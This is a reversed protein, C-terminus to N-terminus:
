TEWKNYWYMAMKSDGCYIKLYDAFTLKKKPPIVRVIRKPKEEVKKPPPPTYPKKPPLSGGADGFLDGQEMSTNKKVKEVSSRTNAAPRFMENYDLIVNATFDCLRSHFSAIDLM